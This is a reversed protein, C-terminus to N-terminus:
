GCYVIGAATREELEEVTLEVVEMVDQTNDM